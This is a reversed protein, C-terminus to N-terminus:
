YSTIGIGAMEVIFVEGLSTKIQLPSLCSSTKRRSNFPPPMIEDASSIASGPDHFNELGGSGVELFLSFHTHPCAVALFNNRVLERWRWLLFRM